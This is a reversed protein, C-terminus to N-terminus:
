IPRSEQSPAPNSKTRNGRLRDSRWNFLWTALVGILLGAATPVLADALNTALFAIYDHESGIYGRFSDLIGISTGFLGVLPATTSIASLSSLGQRLQEHM